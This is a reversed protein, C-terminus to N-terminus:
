VTEPVASMEDKQERKKLETIRRKYVVGDFTMKAMVRGIFKGGCQPCKCPASFWRNRYKWKSIRNIKCECKPCEFNFQSKDLSKDKIETIPYPKFHLRKNFEPNKADRLLSTFVKEDYCEKLLKACVTSDDQATHMEFDKINIGFFEAAAELAVQNKSDYGLARMKAQVLKQLDLYFNMEFSLGTGELLRENEVITHLDSDSWTMTVAAGHSFTNFGKVADALPIGARMKETNIGTLEAFRSTVKKSVASCVTAEFKDIINFESDLRVAGIQLIQNIFKKEPKYFVNDWELDFIIYEM